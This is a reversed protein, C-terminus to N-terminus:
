AGSALVRYVQDHERAHQAVKLGVEGGAEVRAVVEHDIEMSEVTQTFDTTHGKIRITDGAVLAGQDVHVVAVSIHGYFHVVHGIRETGAPIEPEAAVPAPAAPRKPRATRAAKAKTPQAARRAPAAHARAPARKRAPKRATARKATKRAGARAKTKKRAPRARKKAASTRKAKPKRAM